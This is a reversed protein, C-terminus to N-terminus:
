IKEADGPVDGASHRRGEQEARRYEDPKSEVDRRAQEADQEVHGKRLTKEVGRRYREDASRSGEGENTESEVRPDDAM